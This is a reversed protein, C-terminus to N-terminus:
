QESDFINDMFLGVRNLVPPAMAGEIYIRVDKATVTPVLLIRKYGITTGNALLDHLHGRTDMYEIHFKTIRQGLPIYEQLMIRNFTVPENFELLIVATSEGDEVAWYSDYDDNLLNSPSFAKCRKGGRTKNAEIRAKQALDTSFISDLTARFEMLRISDESAILGRRDPPVNLLLLSNRGVSNYYIRMLDNLSKPHENEHWFWGPRISVDTEAPVWHTGGRNGRNLTDTCPSGAGPSFGGINLTSYCTEGAEGSENGVWRCGPGVDSFIVANPQLRTVTANFLPWDYNQRKGNPGEGNAGDFWQEFIRPKGDKWKTGYQTLVEELTRCFTENYQPTGYTPANRDWPSIYVGMAIGEDSCADSLERLVDGKGGQWNSQAVTHDSVASPWLCFGDHHKATIIIGGMGVRHAIDAWQHCNLSTPNFLDEPESGDGWEAGSFTNPGFHCFMNMEMRQWAVQQPTPCAGFPEPPAVKTCGSIILLSLLILSNLSIEKMKIKRQSKCLYSFLSHRFFAVPM